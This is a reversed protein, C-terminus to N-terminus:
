PRQDIPAVLAVLPLGEPQLGLRFRLVVHQPSMGPLDERQRGQVGWRCYTHCGNVKQVLDARAASDKLAGAADLSAEPIELAFAFVAAAVFAIMTRTM